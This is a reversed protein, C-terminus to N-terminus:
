VRIGCFCVFFYCLIFLFFLGSTTELLGEYIAHLDPLRARREGSLHCTFVPHFFDVLGKETGM